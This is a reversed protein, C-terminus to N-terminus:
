NNVLESISQMQNLNDGFGYDVLLPVEFNKFDTCTIGQFCRFGM